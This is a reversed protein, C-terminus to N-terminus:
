KCKVSERAQDLTRSVAAIWQPPFREADTLWALLSAVADAIGAAQDCVAAVILTM